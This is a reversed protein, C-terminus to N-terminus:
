GLMENIAPTEHVIEFPPSYRRALWNHALVVNRGLLLQLEGYLILNDDPYPCRREIDNFRVAGNTGTIMFFTVRNRLHRPEIDQLEHMPGLPHCAANRCCSILSALDGERGVAMIDQHILNCRDEFWVESMKLADGLEVLLKTMVANRLVGPAGDSTILESLLLEASSRIAGDILGRRRDEESINPLAM